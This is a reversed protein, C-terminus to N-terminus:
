ANDATLSTLNVEVDRERGSQGKKKLGGRKRVKEKKREGERGRDKMGRERDEKTRERGRERSGVYM